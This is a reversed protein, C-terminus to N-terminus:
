ISSTGPCISRAARRPARSWRSSVRITPTRNRSPRSTEIIPTASSGGLAARYRYVRVEQPRQLAPLAAADVNLIDIAPYGSVFAGPAVSNTIGSQGDPDSVTGTKVAVNLYVLPLSADEEFDIEVARAPSAGLLFVLSIYVLTARISM